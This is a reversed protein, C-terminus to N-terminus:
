VNHSHPSDCSESGVTGGDITLRRRSCYRRRIRRFHSYYSFHIMTAFNRACRRLISARLRSSTVFFAVTTKLLTSVGHPHHGKQSSDHVCTINVHASASIARRPRLHSEEFTSLSLNSNCKMNRHGTCPLV